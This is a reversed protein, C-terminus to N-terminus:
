ASVVQGARRARELVGPLAAALADVDDITSTVGLSFRLSAKALSRSAGMALLVHSPEPVGATCASGTSCQVGAADLLMLLADGECGPFSFHAISPLGESSGNLVATPDVDTVARVLQARLAAVRDRNGARNAVAGALATAFAAVGPADLTGSRLNREQGGGFLVPAVTTDRSVLLAGVGHPGGVKHASVAVTALGSAGFDFDDWAVAQVADSHVPIGHAACMAVVDSVPQRSGVENNAAMVTVLAIRSSFEQLLRQLEDLDVRGQADVGLWHVTASESDALAQVPDLVAHHEIASAVVITRAPDAARRARYLGLVALNDAETGGGTFVVDAPRAGLAAAVQERAQEVVKRARRGASHLSSPNGVLALEATM